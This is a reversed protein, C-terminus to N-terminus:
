QCPSKCILMSQSQNDAAKLQAVDMGRCPLQYMVNRTRERARARERILHLQALLLLANSGRVM